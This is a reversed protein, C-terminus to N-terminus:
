GDRMVRTARRKKVKVRKRKKKNKIKKRGYVTRSLNRGGSFLAFKQESM